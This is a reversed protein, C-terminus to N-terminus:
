PNAQVEALLEDGSNNFSSLGDMISSRDGPKRIDSYPAIETNFAGMIQTAQLQQAETMVDEGDYEATGLQCLSLAVGSSYNAAAVIEPFQQYNEAIARSYAQSRNGTIIIICRLGSM